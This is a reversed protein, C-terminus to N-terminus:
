CTVSAEAILKLVSTNRSFCSCLGTMWSHLHSLALSWLTPFSLHVDANYSACEVLVRM